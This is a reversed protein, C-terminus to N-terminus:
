FLSGRFIHTGQHQLKIWPCIWVKMGAKRVKDCFYYDEGLYRDNVIGYDFYAMIKRKGDFDPSHLADPTYELEPYAKQYREFVDRRIMMFGAGCESVEVIEDNQVYQVHCDRDVPSVVFVSSAYELDKASTKGNSISSEIQNWAIEKKPYVGCVVDKDTGEKAIVSMALVDRGDFGVDADLSLFHTCDSRLFYDVLYNRARPLISENCIFQTQVHVGFRAAYAALNWLSMIYASYAMGAFMPTAVFIKNKRLEEVKIEM